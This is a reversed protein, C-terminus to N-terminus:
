VLHITISFFINKVVQKMLKIEKKVEREEDSNGSVEVCKVAVVQDTPLHLSRTILIFVAFLM